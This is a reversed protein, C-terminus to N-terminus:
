NCTHYSSICTVEAKRSEPPVVVGEQAGGHQLVPLLEHKAATGDVVLVTEHTDQLGTSEFKLM